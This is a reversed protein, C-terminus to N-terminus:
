LALATGIDEWTWAEGSAETVFTQLRCACLMRTYHRKTVVLSTAAVLLAAADLGGAMRAPAAAM